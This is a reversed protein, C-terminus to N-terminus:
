HKGKTERKMSKSTITQAKPKEEKTKRKAKLEKERFVEVIIGRKKLEPIQDEYCETWQGTNLKVRIRKLM